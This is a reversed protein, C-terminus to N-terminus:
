RISFRNGVNQTFLNLWRSRIIRLTAFPYGTLWNSYFSYVSPLDMRSTYFIRLMVHLKRLLDADAYHHVGREDVDISGIEANYMVNNEVNNNRGGGIFVHLTNKFLLLM